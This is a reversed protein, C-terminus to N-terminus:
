IKNSTYQIAKLKHPWQLTQIMSTYRSGHFCNNNFLEITLPTAASLMQELEETTRLMTSVSFFPNLKLLKLYIDRIEVNKLNRQVLISFLATYQNTSKAPQGPSVSPSSDSKIEQTFKNCHTQMLIILLRVYDSFDPEGNEDM